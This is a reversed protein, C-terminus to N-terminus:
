SRRCGEQSRYYSRQMEVYKSSIRGEVFNQWEILDHEQALQWGKGNEDNTRPGNYLESMTKTHRATLYDGVMEIILPSTENEQMWSHQASLSM